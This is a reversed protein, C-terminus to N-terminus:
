TYEYKIRGQMHSLKMAIKLNAFTLRKKVKYKQRKDWIVVVHLLYNTRWLNNHEIFLSIIKNKSLNVNEPYLSLKWVNMNKDAGGPRIKNAGNVNHYSSINGVDVLQFCIGHIDSKDM